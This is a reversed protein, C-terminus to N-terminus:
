FEGSDYVIILWEKAEELKAEVIKIQAKATEIAEALNVTDADLKKLDGHGKKLAM